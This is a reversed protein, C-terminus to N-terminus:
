LLFADRFLSAHLARACAHCAACRGNPGCLSSDCAPSRSRTQRFCAAGARLNRLSREFDCFSSLGDACCCGCSSIAWFPIVSPCDAAVAAPTPVRACRCRPFLCCSRSRSVSSGCARAGAHARDCDLVRGEHRAPHARGTAQRLQEDSRAGHAAVASVTSAVLADEKALIADRFLKGVGAILEPERLARVPIDALQQKVGRALRSEQLLRERGEEGSKLESEVTDARELLQRHIRGRVGGDRLAKKIPEPM